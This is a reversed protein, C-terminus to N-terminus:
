DFRIFVKHTAVEDNNVIKYGAESRAFMEAYIGSQKLELSVCWAPDIGIERLVLMVASRPISEPVEPILM